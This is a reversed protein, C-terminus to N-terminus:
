ELAFQPAPVASGASGRGRDQTGEDIEISLERKPSAFSESRNEDQRSIVKRRTTGRSGGEGGGRSELM